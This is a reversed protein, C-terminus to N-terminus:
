IIRFLNMWFKGIIFNRYSISPPKYVFVEVNRDETSLSGVRCCSRIRRM